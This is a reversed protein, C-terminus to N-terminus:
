SIQSKGMQSKDRKVKQMQSKTKQSETKQSKTIQSKTRNGTMAGGGGTLVSLHLPLRTLGPWRSLGAVGKRVLNHM